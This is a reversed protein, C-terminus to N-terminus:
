RVAPRNKRNVPWQYEWQWTRQLEWKHARAQAALSLSYRCKLRRARQLGTSAKAARAIIDLHCPLGACDVDNSHDTERDRDVGARRPLVCRGDHGLRARHPGAHAGAGVGSCAEQQCATLQPWGAMFTHHHALLWKNSAGEHVISRPSTNRQHAPFMASAIPSRKGSYDHMITGCQIPSQDADGIVNQGSIFASTFSVGSVDQWPPLSSCWLRRKGRVRQQGLSFRM